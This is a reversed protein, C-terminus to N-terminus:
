TSRFTAGTTHVRLSCKQEAKQALQRELWVPSFYIIGVQMCVPLAWHQVKTQIMGSAIGWCWFSAIAAMSSWAPNNIRSYEMNNYSSPKQVQTIKPVKVICQLMYIHIWDCPNWISTRPILYYTNPNDSPLTVQELDVTRQQQTASHHLSQWLIAVTHSTCSTHHCGRRKHLSVM